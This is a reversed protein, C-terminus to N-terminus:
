KQWEPLWVDLVGVYTRHLMNQVKSWSSPNLCLGQQFRIPRIGVNALIQLRTAAVTRGNKGGRTHGGYECCRDEWIQIM